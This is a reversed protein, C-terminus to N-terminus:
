EVLVRTLDSDNRGETVREMDATYDAASYPPVETVAHREDPEVFERVDDLGNHTIRTAGATYYSNGGVGDRSAKELVLVTRGREAAAHAASFAANGAGVVIVDAQRSDM